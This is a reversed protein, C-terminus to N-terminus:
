KLEGMEDLRNEWYCGWYGAGDIANDDKDSWLARSMKVGQMLLAVDSGRLDRGDPGRFGMAQWIGAIRKFDARPDGYQVNRDGTILERAKDLVKAREAPAVTEAMRRPMCMHTTPEGFGCRVCKKNQYWTPYDELGGGGEVYRAPCERTIDRSLWHGYIYTGSDQVLRADETHWQVKFSVPESGKWDIVHGCNATLLHKVHHGLQIKETAM